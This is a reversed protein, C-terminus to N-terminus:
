AQKQSAVDAGKRLTQVREERAKGLGAFWRGNEHQHAVEGRVREARARVVQEPELLQKVAEGVENVADVGDILLALEHEHGPRM